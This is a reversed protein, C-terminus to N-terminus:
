APLVEPVCDPLSDLHKQTSLSLLAAYEAESMADAYADAEAERADFEPSLYEPEPDSSLLHGCMIHGFEHKLFRQQLQEPQRNDIIVRYRGGSFTCFGGFHNFMYDPFPFFLIDIKTM